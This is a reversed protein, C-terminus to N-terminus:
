HLCFLLEKKPTVTWQIQVVPSSYQVWGFHYLIGEGAKKLTPAFSIM